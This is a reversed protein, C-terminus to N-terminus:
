KLNNDCKEQAAEAESMEGKRRYVEALMCHADKFTPRLQTVKLLRDVAKDLQGTQLSLRALQMIVPVNEPDSQNMDRLMLIGKMPNDELPVEVYTLALNIKNDTNDPELSLANEFALRSKGIAYKKEQDDESRQAAISYTTGAISWSTLDQIVSAIKEAYHGSVLPKDESFWISALSKLYQVKQSDQEVNSLRQEYEQIEVRAGPSISKKSESIVRDMNILEFKMARSKELNKHETSKTSCGFYLLLFLAVFVGITSIQAKTLM